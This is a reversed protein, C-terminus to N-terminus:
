LLSRLYQVVIYISKSKPEDKSEIMALAELVEEPVEKVSSVIAATRVAETEMTSVSVEEWAAILQEIKDKM